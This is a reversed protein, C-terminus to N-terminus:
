ESTFQGKRISRGRRWEIKVFRLDEVVSWWSRVFSCIRREGFADALEFEEEIDGKDFFSRLRNIRLCDWIFSGVVNDWSGGGHVGSIGVGVRGIRGGSIRRWIMSSRGKLDSQNMRPVHLCHFEKANVWAHFIMDLVKRMRSVVRRILPWPGEILSSCKNGMSGSGNGCDIWGHNSRVLDQGLLVVITVHRTFSSFGNIPPSKVYL